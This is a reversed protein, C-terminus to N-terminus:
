PRTRIGNENDKKNIKNKIQVINNYYVMEKIDVTNNVDIPIM